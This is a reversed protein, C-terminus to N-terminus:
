RKGCANGMPCASVASSVMVAGGYVHGEHIVPTGIISNLHVTRRESARETQWVVKPKRDLREFELLTAGNYFSTFFLRKGDLRPTPVSLGSRIEWLVTWLVKGSEPDLGNIAEPHWIVLVRVGDVEFIRPPCYGPEKARLARWKEEGTKKDFSVVTTGDGAALCILQDSEVLPTAAFGWVPTKVQYLPVFSKAWLVGGDSVRRCRLEGEAGLTYVLGEDIM